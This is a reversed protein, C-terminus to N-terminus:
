RTACENKFPWDFFDFKQGYSLAVRSAILFFCPVRPFLISLAVVSGASSNKLHCCSVSFNDDVMVPETLRVFSDDVIAFIEFM